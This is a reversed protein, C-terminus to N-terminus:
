KGILMREVHVMKEYGRRDILINLSKGSIDALRRPGIEKTLPISNIAKIKDGPFLGGKEAASYRSVKKIEGNKLVEIGIAQMRPYSKLPMYLASRLLKGMDGAIKEKQFSELISYFSEFEHLLKLLEAKNDRFMSDTDTSVNEFTGKEVYDSSAKIVWLTINKKRKIFYSIIGEKINLLSALQKENLNGKSKITDIDKTLNKVFSQKKDNKCLQRNKCRNCGAIFILILCLFSLVENKRM